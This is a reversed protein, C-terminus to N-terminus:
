RAGRCRVVAWVTKLFIYYDLWVSWNNLYYLDLTVRQAYTLNSRGSVQWLGTVGPKVMAIYRWNDGYYHREMEVIPRPGILSMEGRLVNWIQPLEDLSTRRLLRGLPTVRPDHELKFKEEWERLLEPDEALMQELQRDADRYMTRFKWIRFPKGEKGLRLASYFVPGRSTLKVAAALVAMLPLVAPLALIAMLHESFRKFLQYNRRLMRNGVELGSFNSIAAPYVWQIPLAQHTSLLLVYQFAAFWEPLRRASKEFSITSVLYPVGLREAADPLRELPGLYPVGPVAAAPDDDMVGLVEFGVFRNRAFEAALQAGAEGGGALLVPIRGVRFRWMLRRMGYRTVPLLLITVLASVPLLWLARESGAPLLPVGALLYVGFTNITLRKLEEVAGVGLGPHVISGCYLRSLWNLLGLLCAAAAGFLAFLAIEDVPLWAAALLLPVAAATVADAALLLPGRWATHCIRRASCALAM